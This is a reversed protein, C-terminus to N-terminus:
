RVSNSVLVLFSALLSCFISTLSISNFHKLEDVLLFFLPSYPSKISVFPTISNKVSLQESNNLRSFTARSKFLIPISNRSFSIDLKFMMSSSSCLLSSSSLLPLVFNDGSVSLRNNSCNLFVESSFKIMYFILEFKM